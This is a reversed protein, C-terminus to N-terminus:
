SPEILFRVTLTLLVKDRTLVTNNVLDAFHDHFSDWGVEGEEKRVQGLFVMMWDEYDTFSPSLGDDVYIGNDLTVLYEKGEETLTWAKPETIGDM